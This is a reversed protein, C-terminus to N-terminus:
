ATRRMEAKLAERLYPFEKAIARLWVHIRTGVVAKPSKRRWTTAIGTLLPRQLDCAPGELRWIAGGSVGHLDPGTLKVDHRYFDDKDYDVIVTTERDRGCEAYDALTVEDTVFSLTAATLESGDFRRPQRSVPYGNLFHNTEPAIESVRVLDLERLHLHDGSRIRQRTLPDILWYALDVPDDDRSGSNPLPSSLRFSPLTLLERSTGFYHPGSKVRDAVHAASLLFVTDALGILIGSGILEPQTFSEKYIPALARGLRAGVTEKWREIAAITDDHNAM